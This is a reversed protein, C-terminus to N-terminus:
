VQEYVRATLEALSSRDLFGESSGAAGVKYSAFVVATRLAEEPNRSRAYAHLFAAFLADGAGSSNIVPRTVVAPVHVPEDAQRHALVAGQAGLGIVVVKAPFHQLVRRAWVEPATPLKEGSMFLINAAELYPRNYSDGLDSLTHLDTAILKNQAAASSLLPRTYAINTLVVVDCGAAAQEFQTLPYSQDLVDKLDTRIHRAGASDYLVVSQPTQEVQALVFQDDIGDAALVARINTAALDRGIISALMVDEGLTVLAKSLNYGVASVRSSVGFPTYATPTYDLPFSAVKATTEINLNGVVLFSM